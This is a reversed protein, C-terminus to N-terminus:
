IERDQYRFVGLIIVQGEGVEYALKFHYKLTVIRRFSRDPVPMGSNPYHALQNISRYIDSLIAPVAEPAIEEYYEIIARLDAEAERRFRIKM